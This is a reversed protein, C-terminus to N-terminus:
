IGNKVLTKLADPVDPFVSVGNMLQWGYAHLCANVDIRHSPVGIEELAHRLANGYSPAQLGDEAELWAQRAHQRVADVFLDTTAAIPGVERTIYDFVLQLDHRDQEQWELSRKSWDLLTDDMDFLVAKLM